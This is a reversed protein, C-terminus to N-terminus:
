EPRIRLLVRVAGPQPRATQFLFQRVEESAKPAPAPPLVVAVREAKGPPKTKPNKPPNLIGITTGQDRKTPDTGLLSTIDRHDQKSLAAVTVTRFAPPGKKEVAGVQTLIKALEAPQLNEAYVLFATKKGAGQKLAADSGPDIVLKIGHQQLVEKLRAVAQPSSRVAIDLELADAKKIEAALKGAAPGDKDLESFAVTVGREPPIPAAFKAYVGETIQGILPNPPKRPAPPPDTDPVVPKPVAPTPTPAPAPEPATGKALPQEVAGPASLDGRFAVYLVAGLTVVFLVAAAAGALAYPLWRLRLTAVAPPAPELGRDAIAQVVEAAFGPDLRRPPLERLRRANEHLQALLERAESSQHLLRLAAKRQRSSLEGDVFATLLRISDDSLM